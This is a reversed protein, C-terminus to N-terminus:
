LSLAVIAVNLVVYGIGIVAMARADLRESQDDKGLYCLRLSFISMAVCLFITGIALFNIQEAMTIVTSQPLSDSIVFANASAAFISGVGLGFRADLDTARVKFALLGLLVSLGAIWFQKFLPGFGERHLEVNFNLQSYSSAAASSLLGYNTPYVHDLVTPAALKVAWGPVNVGPDMATNPDPAYVIQDITAMQDEISIALFHDDMPYHKVDYDHFVTAEVRLSAYNMDGDRALSVESKNEIRGNSIEFTEYPKVNGDKWRFWTWMDVTFSGDKQVVDKIRLIYAGVQVTVPGAPVAPAAQVAPTAADQALASPALAIQTPLLSAIIVLALRLFRM